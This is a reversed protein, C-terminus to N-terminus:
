AMPLPRRPNLGFCAQTRELMTKTSAVEATWRAPTAEVDLIIARLDGVLDAFRFGRQSALALV